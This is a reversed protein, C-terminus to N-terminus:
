RELRRVSRLIRDAVMSPAEHEWFRLVHWGAAEFLSTTEADREINRRVKETWFDSNRKPGVYHDPCGHWFCGDVFCAVKPGTFM